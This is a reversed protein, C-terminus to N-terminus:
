RCLVTFILLFAFSTVSGVHSYGLDLLSTPKGGVSKRSRDVMADMMAEMEVQTPDGGVANYSRWGLPPTLGLGNDIASAAPLLLLAIFGRVM